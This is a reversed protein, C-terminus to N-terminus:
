STRDSCRYLRLGGSSHWVSAPVAAAPQWDLRVPTVLFQFENTACARELQQASPGIGAGGGSLRLYADAPVVASLARARRELELATARSFMMGSTQVVTLYNPRQLLMWTELASESWFVNSGPPILARWPAFRAVLEPGFQQQSWRRWGDPLLAICAGAALVGLAVLAPLGRQRTTQWLALGVLAVPAAGDVTVSTVQRIWLPIRPDSYYVELFLSNSAIRAALSIVALGIAGLFVLPLENRHAWRQLGLSAVAALATAIALTGTAFLWAAILLTTTIKGAISRHWCAAGILPLLLAAVTVALWMWRWPQLQTFLTLHLGDCAVLTLALGTVATLTVILCLKRAAPPEVRAWGIVLTALPVATRGWDELSWHALFAYPSRGQILRLWESDLTGFPGSPFLLAEGVLLVVGGGLLVASLRPRPLGLHLFGLAAFGSAAMVPHILMGVAMLGAALVPRARLAAVLGFLVLAEAGMRPTLFSEVCSFVTDAGYYGPIAILVAMGLLALSTPALRRVLLLAGLFFALQYGLTLIAAAPEVGLISITAAYVPSFLTFQDQSGFHLFVDQSLAGPHLYALAQLTYLRADHQLGRYGHALVWTALCLLSVVAFGLNRSVAAPATTLPLTVTNNAAAPM